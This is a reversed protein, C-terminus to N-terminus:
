TLTLTLNPTLTLTTIHDPYNLTLTLILTLNPNPNYIHKPNHNHNSNVSGLMKVRVRSGLGCLPITSAQLDYSVLHTGRFFLRRSDLRASRRRRRVRPWILMAPIRRRYSVQIYIDSFVANNNCGCTSTGHSQIAFQTETIVFISGRYFKVIGQLSLRAQFVDCHARAYHVIRKQNIADVRKPSWTM